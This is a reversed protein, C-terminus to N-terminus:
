AGKKRMPIIEVPDEDMVPASGEEKRLRVMFGRASSTRREVVGRGRMAHTFTRFTGPEEGNESCWVCWDSYLDRAPTPAAAPDTRELMWRGQADEDMFYTETAALVAAPTQLGDRQWALCGEIMWQLIGPLEAVLEDSLNKNVVKPTVTFPVLHFRRKMAADVNHLRPKHNGAFLIKFQPVYTFFDQRMFRASIPDGGTISKLKAEDWSRGEQTEQATVLRSGALAALDTPHKDNRSATFTDMAAVSAYSGLARVITNLFVGKGNGGSGYLFALVHERTSGTLCYGVLRQLYAELSVDGNTVEKLFASWKPTAIVRPAVGTQRTFLYKPDNPIVAGTRLDIVGGPTNLLWPDADFAEVPMAIDPHHAAYSLTYDIAKVSSAFQRQVKVDQATGGHRGAETGAKRCTKGAAERARGVIDVAWRSGDWWLWGGLHKCHRVRDGHEARFRNAMWAHSYAPNPDKAPPAEELPMEAFDDSATELGGFERALDLLYAAGLRFPPRLSEWDRRVVAPDNHGDTWRSCWDLFLGFARPEDDPMAAKLAVAVKLYDDRTPFADSTNPLSRMARDVLTPDGRLASQDVSGADGETLNAKLITCGRGELVGELERLFDLVQEETIWPLADLTTPEEDWRYAEGSPHLGAIVAYQGAGLVEVAHEVGKADKFQLRKKRFPVETRYFLARKPTRGYRVPSSGLTAAAYETVARALALDMVDIDICPFRATRLGLNGSTWGDVDQRSARVETWRGAPRKDGARIPILDRFGADFFRAYSM